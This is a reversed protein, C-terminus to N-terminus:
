YKVEVQLNGIPLVSLKLRFSRSCVKSPKSLLKLAFFGKHWAKWLERQKNELTDFAM